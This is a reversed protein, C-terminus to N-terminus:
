CIVVAAGTAKEKPPLFITLTPISIKNIIVIGNDTETKEENASPKSNPIGSNYLPITQQAFSIAMVNFTLLLALIYKM